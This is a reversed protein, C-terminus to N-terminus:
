KVMGKEQQRWSWYASIIGKAWEHRNYQQVTNHGTNAIREREKPNDLFYKIKRALDDYDKFIVLDEGDVFMDERGVWDDSLLFGGAAMIKYVRDSAGGATVINLNIRSKAVVQSHHVGYAGQVVAVQHGCSQLVELRNGYIDGIFSLDVEHEFDFPRDVEADFGECVHYSNKNLKLCEELVNLKDCCVFNCLAARDQVEQSFSTSVLPDMYWLGVCSYKKMEVVVSNPMSGKSILVLDYADNKVKELLSDICKSTGVEQEIIPYNYQIVDHELLSLERFQSNNTSKNENDFKGIYLIKM